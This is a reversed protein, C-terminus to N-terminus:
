TPHLHPTPRILPGTSAAPSHPRSSHLYLPADGACAHPLVAASRPTSGGRNAGLGPQHAVKFITLKTSAEAGAPLHCYLAFATPVSRSLHLHHGLTRISPFARQQDDTFHSPICREGPGTSHDQGPLCRPFWGIERLLFPQGEPCFPVPFRITHHEKGSPYPLRGQGRDNRKHCTLLPLRDTHVERLQAVLDIHLREQYDRKDCTRRSTM